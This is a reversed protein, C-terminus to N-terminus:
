DNGRFIQELKKRYSTYEKELEYYHKLWNKSIFRKFIVKFVSLFKYFAYILYNICRKLNLEDAVDCYLLSDRDESNIEKSNTKIETFFITSEFNPHRGYNTTLKYIEYIEPYLLKDEKPFLKGLVRRFPKSDYKVVNNVWDRIKEPNLSMKRAAALAEASRSIITYAESIHAELMLQTSIIFGRFCFWFMQDIAIQRKQDLNLNSLFNEYLFLLKNLYMFEEPFKKSSILFNNKEEEIITYFDKIKITNM